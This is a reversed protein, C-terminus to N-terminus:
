ESLSGTKMLWGGQLRLSTPSLDIGRTRRSFGPFSPRYNQRSLRDRLWYRAGVERRSACQKSRTNLMSSFLPHQGCAEFRTVLAEQTAEDLRDTKGLPDGSQSALESAV